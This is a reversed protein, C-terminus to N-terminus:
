SKEQLKLSGIFDRKGVQVGDHRLIAYSTVVHFYFNPLAMENLYDKGLITNGELFPLDINRNSADAFDKEGFSGLYQVTSTIRQRIEAVTKEEDPHKPAEKGSLRAAAFKAADCASQIQRVLPWQDPALRSQLLVDPEFSKNKAHAVGLEIWRDLNELTKKMQPVSAEYLSM